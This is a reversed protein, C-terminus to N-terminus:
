LNEEEANVQFTVPDSTQCHCHYFCGSRLNVCFHELSFVPHLSRPLLSCQLLQSINGQNKEAQESELCTRSYVYVHQLGEKDIILVFCTMLIDKDM